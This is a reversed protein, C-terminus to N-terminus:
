LWIRCGLEYRHFRKVDSKAVPVIGSYVTIMTGTAMDPCNLPAHVDWGYSVEQGDESSIVKGTETPSARCIERIVTTEGETQIYDGTEQDYFDEVGSKTSFELTHPFRAM